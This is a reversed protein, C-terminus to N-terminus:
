SGGGLRNIAARLAAREQDDFPTRLADELDIVAGFAVRRTEGLNLETELQFARAALEDTRDSEGAKLSRAAANAAAQAAPLDRDLVVGLQTRASEVAAQAQAVQALVRAQAAELARGAETRKAEAAKIASRNLDAPPLTLALNLPLKVVGHDWSYGPGLRIDPYQRAVETRLASEALDYDAVARLVDRRNLAADSGRVSLSNLDAPPQLPQLVLGDVASGSVGLAKALAGDATDRRGFADVLRHRAAALESRALLAAAQPDEGAAVRQDLRDARLQRARVLTDTLTIQSQAALREGAARALAVRVAWVAEGYDYFAQLASLDGQNIRGAKRAGFDLPLDAGAGYLWPSSGANNAYESTLTLTSAPSVRAAKAAARATRYRAAAQAIDPNRALAATLLEAQSWSEGPPKETLRRAALDAPFAAPSVPAQAYTQCGGLAALAVILSAARASM